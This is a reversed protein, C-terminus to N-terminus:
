AGFPTERFRDTWGARDRGPRPFSHMALAVVADLEDPHPTRFAISLTGAGRRLRSLPPRIQDPTRLASLDRRAGVAARPGDATSWLIPLVGIRRWEHSSNANRSVGTRPPQLPAPAAGGSSPTSGDGTTADVAARGSAAGTRGPSSTIRRSETCRTSPRRTPKM